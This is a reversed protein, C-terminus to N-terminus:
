LYVKAIFHLARITIWQRRKNILGFKVLKTTCLLFPYLQVLDLLIFKLFLQIYTTTM